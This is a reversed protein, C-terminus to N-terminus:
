NLIIRKSKSPDIVGNNKTLLRIHAIILERVKHPSIFKETAQAFVNYRDGGNALYDSTVVYYHATDSLPINNVSASEVKGDSYHFRAGGLGDGHSLAMHLFLERISKGKMKLLVMQNEFPMLEFINRITVKGQPLQARLGNINIVSLTPLPEKGMNKLEKIGAELLLDSVFNSLPTEPKQKILLEANFGIVESMIKKISDRYPSIFLDMLQDQGMTSDIPYYRSSQVNPAPGPSQCSFNFSILIFAIYLLRNM